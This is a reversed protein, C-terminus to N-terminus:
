NQDIHYIVKNDYSQLANYAQQTGTWNGYVEYNHIVHLGDGSGGYVSDMIAEWLNGNLFYRFVFRKAYGDQYLGSPADGCALINATCVLDYQDPDDQHPSVILLPMSGVASYYDWPQTPESFCRNFMYCDFWGYATLGTTITFKQRDEASETFKTIDLNKEDIREWNGGRAIRYEMGRFNNESYNADNFHLSDYGDEVWCLRLSRCKVNLDQHEQPDWQETTVIIGFKYNGDTAGSIINDYWAEKEATTMADYEADTTWVYGDGGGGGTASLVGQADITLGSGVKIEGLSNASAVPHMSSGNQVFERGSVTLTGSVNGTASIQYWYYRDNVIGGFVAFGTPTSGSQYSIRVLPLEVTQAPSTGNAVGHVYITQGSLYRQYMDAYWQRRDPSYEMDDIDAISTSYKTYGSVTCSITDGSIQIGTGAQYTGAPGTPGQPGTPGTPGVLSALQEPTFDEYRFPDGKPGTPGQPGTPGTPGPVGGGGEPAYVDTQVGDITVEAIKTGASVIQNWAVESKGSLADIQTQLDATDGTTAYDVSENELDTVREDLDQTVASTPYDVLSEDIQQQVQEPTMGGGGEPAFIDTDTGDVTITAVKTGATIVQTVTVETATGGTIEIDGGQTIPQGNITAFDDTLTYDELSADIMRQVEEPTTGGSVSSQPYNGLNRPIRLNKDGEDYRVM